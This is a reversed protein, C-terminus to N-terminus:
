PSPRARTSNPAKVLYGRRGHAAEEQALDSGGQDHEEQRADEDEDPNARQGAIRRQRQAALLPARLQELLNPV